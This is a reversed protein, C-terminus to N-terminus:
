DHQRWTLLKSAAGWGSAARLVPSIAVIQPALRDFRFWGLADPENRWRMYAERFDADLPRTDPGLWTLLYTSGDSWMIGFYSGITDPAFLKGYPTLDILRSAKSFLFYNLGAEQLRRKALDPDDGLIDDLRGSMNFSISSEILCGPAMCFSDVNTSWIPTDPPLLQAAAFAGPNIAGFPYPSEAHQYAEGLSWWGSTFRAVNAIETPVRRSWHEKGQWEAIVIISFAMPLAFWVWSDRRRGYTRTLIWLTAAIGFMTGVPVFFSSVRFFSIPQLRGITVAVVIFLGLLVAFRAAVTATLAAASGDPRLTIRGGEIKDSIKLIIAAIVPGALFPWLAQARMFNLLEKFTAWGFPKVLAQYNDRIWAAAIIMPIVGWRDLRSPDAFYLMFGLPQDSPMGTQLYGVVYMGLVAAAIAAGVLGYGVVDRWRRRVVFWVWLLAAYLGLLIGIFQTITAAAIGSSAAMIRFVRPPGYREMCLAWATLMILATTEEHDKQFEGEGWGVHSLLYYLLYVLAGAAPWLSQPAMRELLTTMALTAFAVYCFTALAPAEPDTLLMGLFALGNGKSYYYHYWVDNPTLGHNKLVALYYYFYHTYYDSGGGPYVARRLLLWVAVAVVLGTGIAQPSARRARYEAVHDIAARWGAAAVTGFHRASGLLVLLCLGAMVPRDYLNRVGLVLMVAHWIGIGIGFGLVAREATTLVARERASMILAAIGAGPAYVLWSLIGVFVIRLANDAVVIMGADFFHRHYYDVQGFWFVIATFGGLLAAVALWEAWGLGARPASRELASTM